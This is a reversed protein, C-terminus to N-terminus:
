SWKKGQENIAWNQEIIARNQENKQGIRSMKKQGIKSMKKQGIRSMKKQSIRSMKKRWKHDNKWWKQENKWWKQENGGAMKAWKKEMEAWKKVMKAWKKVMKAWKEVMKEWKKAMKAWKGVMEAWKLGPGGCGGVPLPLTVCQGGSGFGARFLVIRLWFDDSICWIVRFVVRFVLIQHVGSPPILRNRPESAKKQPSKQHSLPSPFPVISPFNRSFVPFSLGEKKKQFFFWTAICARSFFLFHHPSSKCFFGILWDFWKCFNEYV